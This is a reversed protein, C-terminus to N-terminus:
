VTLGVVGLIKYWNSGLWSAVNTIHPKLKEIVDVFGEANKAYGFARNIARGIEDKEPEEKALEDNADSLANEIKRQDPTNVEALIERLTAVETGIDVGGQPPLNVQEYHTFSINKDGTQIINQNANGGIHVSRTNGQKPSDSM